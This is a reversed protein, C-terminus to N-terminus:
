LHVVPRCGDLRGLEADLNGNTLLRDSLPVRRLWWPKFQREQFLLLLEFPNYVAEGDLQLRAGSGSESATWVKWNPSWWELQGRYLRLARLVGGIGHHRWTRSGSFCASKASSPSAPRFPSGSTPMSDKIVSYLNRLGDRIERAIEPTTLNDLIPKDYEDVLVVVREGTAADATRILKGFCGSNTVVM